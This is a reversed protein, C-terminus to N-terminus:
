RHADAGWVPLPRARELQAALSLLTPEDDTRGVLQVAVPLGDEALGCPVSAAPNGAVNWLACYAISPMSRLAARVTGVGDLVGVPRPRHATTPTMLVDVAGQGGVGEFVRNAAASVKETRRLAAEVVRPTVWRGLRLTERTRRELLEPHEVLEAEARLGGFFQPVFAATPDPYRPDVERVDHGLDSLLRATQELARVHAPDPRVGKTVPQASWGIRLRGPERGAAEVFSGAEGASFRDGPEGGRIADYVLASDLVTRSLPGVTGLAWWLHAAPASTVRGRQPKLGFLGCSASPIRISGGGDGGIGVPVMGAAVAVATGGSSGGPSRAPDWPNRTLGHAVSETFPWAGFEPMLTKGVVVAGAARLRRVVTGDTAAPTSNGRGGFTTVAGAVDNEEKIVVPVGHLPGAPEGAARARDREDAEALAAEALVTSMAHLPGDLAGIRALAAETVARATVSGSTTLQATEAATARSLDTM